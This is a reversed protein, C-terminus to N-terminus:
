RTIRRELHVPVRELERIHSGIEPLKIYESIGDHILVVGPRPQAFQISHSISYAGAGHIVFIDEIQPDPLEIGVGLVDVQMCLPGYIDVPIRSDSGDERVSEIRHKLYYASPLLNVGADVVVSTSGFHNKKSVVRTLLFTSESVIARGPELILTPKNKLNQVTKNLPSCIVEAYEDISPIVWDEPFVALPLPDQCAFGGGLDIYKIIIGIEELTQTFSLIMETAKSYLDGDNINTGIHIHLGQIEIADANNAFKCAELAEGSEINFGFRSWPMEGLQANVRIGIPISKKKGRGIKAIRSIEELSDANILSNNSTARLLEEDRKYPGNFIIHDGRVGLLQAIEYEFGSVVEAWAGEQHIIACVAGLYNTKYSYAIVVPSYRNQFAQRFSQMRVRINHESVVYLPSGYQKILDKVKIGDIENM